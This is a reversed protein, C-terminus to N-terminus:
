DNNMWCIVLFQTMSGILLIGGVIALVLFAKHDTLFVGAMGSVMALYGAVFSAAQVYALRSIAKPHTRYFLGLLFLSVWGLLNMHAHVPALTFDHVIGMYMGLCMGLIVTAVALRFCYNPLRSPLTPNSAPASASPQVQFIGEQKRFNAAWGAAPGGNEGTLGPALECSFRPQTTVDSPPRCRSLM